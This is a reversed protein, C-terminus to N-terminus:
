FTDGAFLNVSLSNKILIMQDVLRDLMNLYFFLKTVFEINYIISMLDKPLIFSITTTEAALCKKWKKQIPQDGRCILECVSYEM